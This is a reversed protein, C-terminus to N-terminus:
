NPKVQLLLGYHYDIMFVDVCHVPGYKAEEFTDSGDLQWSHGGDRMLAEESYLFNGCTSGTDLRRTCIVGPPQM